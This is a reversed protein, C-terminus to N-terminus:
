SALRMASSRSSSCFRLRDAGVRSSRRPSSTRSRSALAAAVPWGDLLMFEHTSQLYWLYAAMAGLVGGVAAVLPLLTRRWRYLAGGQMVAELVEETIVGVFFVMGIDNVSFRLTHAFRFYSEGATNAWALAVLVGIPLLLFHDVVFALATTATPEVADVDVRGHPVLRHRM